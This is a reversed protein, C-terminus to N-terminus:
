DGAAMQILGFLHGEPDRLYAVTPGEPVEWRPVLAKAGLGEAKTVAAAIDPVGVTVLVYDGLEAGAKDGAAWIGGPIGAGGANTDVTGYELPNNADIKWEFLESYFDQLAQGNRGGFEFWVVPAGM